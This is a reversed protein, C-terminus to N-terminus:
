GDLKGRFADVLPATEALEDDLQRVLMSRIAARAETAALDDRGAAKALVVGAAEMVARQSLEGNWATAVLENGALTTLVDALEALRAATRDPGRRAAYRTLGVLQLAAARAWHADDRLAPLLVDLVTAAVARHIEADPLSQLELHAPDLPPPEENV